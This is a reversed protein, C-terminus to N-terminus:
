TDPPKTSAHEAALKLYKQVPRDILTYDATSLEKKRVAPIGAALIGPGLQQRVTVVSGAAIISGSKVHAQNLIIAGIGIMCRNDITCGHVVANHGVTVNDGIITPNGSETHVTCNDQINTNHGIKVYSTDGRIVTGYWINAGDMIEVDGVIIASAAIFVKNGIKPRKGMYELIM